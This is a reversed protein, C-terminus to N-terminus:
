TSDREVINDSLVKGKAMAECVRSLPQNILAGQIAEDIVFVVALNKADDLLRHGFGLVPISDLTEVTGLIASARHDQEPGM